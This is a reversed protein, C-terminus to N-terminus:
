RGTFVAQDNTSGQTGGEAAIPVTLVNGIDRFGLSEFRDNDVGVGICNNIQVIGQKLRVMSGALEIRAFGLSFRNAVNRCRM